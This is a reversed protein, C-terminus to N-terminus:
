KRRRVHPKEATELTVPTDATEVGADEAEAEDVEATELTVPTDLSVAFGGAVLSTALAGDIVDGAAFNGDPSAYRTHLRARM